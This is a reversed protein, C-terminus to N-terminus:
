LLRDPSVWLSFAAHQPQAITDQHQHGAQQAPGQLGGVGRPSAQPRSGLRGPKCRDSARPWPVATHQPSASIGRGGGGGKRPQRSAARRRRQGRGPTTVPTRHRQPRGERQRHGAPPQPPPTPPPTRQRARCFSRFCLLWNLDKVSHMCLNACLCSLALGGHRRAFAASVTGRPARVITNRARIAKEELARGGTTCLLAPGVAHHRRGGHWPQDSRGNNVSGELVPTLSVLM